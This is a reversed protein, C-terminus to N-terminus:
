HNKRAARIVDKREAFPPCTYGRWTGDYLGTVQREAHYLSTIERYAPMAAAPRIDRAAYVAEDIQARLYLLRWRWNWRMTPIIARDIRDAVIRAEHAVAQRRDLEAPSEEHLYNAMARGIDDKPRGEARTEYIDELKSCLAVFDAPDCGPLEYRAYEALLDAATRKPDIYLGNVVIKNVDEYIGESYLEFGKALKQCQRYLREFRGPLPNAGTGGWPYRGWMSIEPFTIVPIDKPIPHELPYRPFDAHSDVVIADIWDQKELYEYFLKWDNDDFNWTSVYHRGGPHSRDNMDRFKEILKVYGRGGWPACSECGCGGEDFPWYMWGSIPIDQMRDLASQFVSVLYELAGPKEPCVNFQPEGRGCRAARFREPMDHPACNSGGFTTLEMDLARIREGIALSTAAFVARSGTTAKSGYEVSYDRCDLQTHFGNFGWLALDEVYRLFEDASARQYWNEFHRAVYASRIECKPEFRYEGDALEFTKEGYRIARLMAGAGFVLSRFRGGHIEATGGGVKVVANEGSLSRDNVFRVALTNAADSPPTRNWLRSLVVERIFAREKPLSSIDIEMNSYEAAEVHLVMGVVMAAMAGAGALFERRGQNMQQM